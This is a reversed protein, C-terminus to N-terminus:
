DSFRQVITRAIVGAAIWELVSTLVLWVNFTSVTAPSPAIGRFYVYRGAYVGPYNSILALCYSGQHLVFAMWAAGTFGLMWIWKKM